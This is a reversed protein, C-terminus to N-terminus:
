IGSVVQPMVNPMAESTELSSDPIVKDHTSFMADGSTPPNMVTNKSPQANLKREDMKGEKGAAFMNVASRAASSLSPFAPPAGLVGMAQMPQPPTPPHDNDSTPKFPHKEEPDPHKHVKGASYGPKTVTREVEAQLRPHEPAVAAKWFTSGAEHALPPPNFEHAQLQSEAAVQAVLNEALAHAKEVAIPTATAVPLGAAKNAAQEVEKGAKIGKSELEDGRHNIRSEYMAQRAYDEDSLGAWSSYDDMYDLYNDLYIKAIKKHTILKMKYTALDGNLYHDLPGIVEPHGPFKTKIAIIKNERDKV